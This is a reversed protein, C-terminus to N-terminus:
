RSGTIVRPGRARFRREWRCAHCNCGRPPDFRGEQIAQLVRDVRSTLDGFGAETASFSVEKGERLFYYTY